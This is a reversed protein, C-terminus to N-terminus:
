QTLETRVVVSASLTRHVPCREAIELLRGRQEDGLPGLLTIERTLRDMRPEAHECRAEDDSHLRDHTLRVRAEELPWKKRDAHDLGGAGLPDAGGRTLAAAGGLSHGILIAPPSLTTGMHAAAALLDGVNSTFDSDEFAGESEGLGTFDFRFVGIRRETLARSINVVAKLDKSCTFCHAFLAWADVRRDAPQSVLASLRSGTAGPFTVRENIM